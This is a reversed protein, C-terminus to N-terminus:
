IITENKHLNTYISFYIYKKKYYGESKRTSMDIEKRLIKV